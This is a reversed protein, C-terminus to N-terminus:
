VVVKQKVLKLKHYNTNGWWSPIPYREWTVKEVTEYTFMLTGLLMPDLIKCNLRNYFVPKGAEDVVLKKKVEKTIKKYYYYWGEKDRYTKHLYRYEQYDDIKIVIPEPVKNWDKRTKCVQQLLGESDVYFSESQLEKLGGRFYYYVKNEKIVANTDVPIYCDFNGIKTKLESYVENWSCGLKTELYNDILKYGNRKDYKRHKISRNPLLSCEIYDKSIYRPLKPKKKSYNSLTHKSLGKNSM